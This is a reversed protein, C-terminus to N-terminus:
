RMGINGTQEYELYGIWNNLWEKIINGDVDSFKDAEQEYLEWAMKPITDEWTEGKEYDIYKGEASYKYYRAGNYELELQIIPEPGAPHIAVVNIAFLSGYPSVSRYVDYSLM